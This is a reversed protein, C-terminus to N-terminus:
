GASKEVVWQINDMYETLDIKGLTFADAVQVPVLATGYHSEDQLALSIGARDLSNQTSPDLLIGISLQDLMQSAHILAHQAPRGLRDRVVLVGDRKVCKWAVTEFGVTSLNHAINLLTASLRIDITPIRLAHLEPMHEIYTITNALRTATHIRLLWHWVKRLRHIGLRRVQVTGKGYKIEITRPAVLQFTKHAAINRWQHIPISLDPDALLIPAQARLTSPFEGVLAGFDLKTVDNPWPNGSCRQAFSFLIQLQPKFCGEAVGDITSFLQYVRDHIAAGTELPASTEFVNLWRDDSTQMNAFYKLLNEYAGQRDFRLVRRHLRLCWSLLDTYEPFLAIRALNRLEVHFSDINKGLQRQRRFYPTFASRTAVSWDARTFAKPLQHEKISRVLKRM